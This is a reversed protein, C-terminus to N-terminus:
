EPKEADRAAKNAAATARGRALAAKQAEGMVRKKEAGRKGAESRVPDPEALGLGEGKATEVLSKVDARQTNDLTGLMDALQPNLLRVLAIQEANFTVPLGTMLPPLYFQQGPIHANDMNMSSTVPRHRELNAAEAEGPKLRLQLNKWELIKLKNRREWGVHKDVAGPPAKRMEEQSPMGVLIADLLEGSRRVMRGEEEGTAPPRPAQTEVSRKLRRLQQLVVGKDEATALKAECAAIESNTEEVQHPRMLPTTDFATEM